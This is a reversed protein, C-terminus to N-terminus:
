RKSFQPARRAGYLGYKKREKERPDRKLFGAKKLAKRFVPNLLLLVRAIGHRVAEAQGITGGGNVRCTLEIKGWQGVTKLPSSVTNQLMETAFYTDWPKDNVTVTSKGAGKWLRVRAIATKRRGVSELYARTNRSSENVSAAHEVPSEVAVEEQQDVMPTASPTSDETTVKKRRPASVRKKPLGEADLAVPKRTRRKPQTGEETTTTIPPVQVDM